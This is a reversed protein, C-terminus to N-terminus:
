TWCDMAKLKAIDEPSMGFKQQHTTSIGLAKMDEDSLYVTNIKDALCLRLQILSMDWVADYPLCHFTECAPIILSGFITKGGFSLTHGDKNKHKAIRAQEEQEKAIGSLSILTEAKPESLAILLLKAIDEDSISKSFFQARKEIWKSRDLHWRDRTSLIALIRCVEIRKASILRMVEMSPNKVLLENDIGLASLHRELILSMGLSPSWQEFRRNGIFFERPRDMVADALTENLANEGKDQM